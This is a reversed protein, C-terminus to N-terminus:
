TRTDEDRSLLDALLARSEDTDLAELRLRTWMAMFRQVHREKTILLAVLENEIYVKTREVMVLIEFDGFPICGDPVV